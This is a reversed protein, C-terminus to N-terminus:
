SARRGNSGGTRAWGEGGHQASPLLAEGALIAGGKRFFALDEAYLAALADEQEPGFPRWPGPAGTLRSLEDGRPGMGVYPRASSLAPLRLDRACLALAHDPRAAFREFPLVIVEAEPFRAAVELALRRWSRPQTVLRELLAQAPAPGGLARSWLLASAWYGRWDRVSLVVRDCRAGFVASLRDLRAPAEPSLRAAELNGHLPGLLDPSAVLLRRATVGGARLGFRGAARSPEARPGLGGLRGDRLRAGSWVALGARALQPGMGSALALMSGMACRHAGLHLTVKM